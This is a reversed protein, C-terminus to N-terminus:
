IMDRLVLLVQMQQPISGGVLKGWLRSKVLRTAALTAAAIIDDSIQILLLPFCSLSASNVVLCYAVFM